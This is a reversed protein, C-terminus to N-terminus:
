NTPKVTKYISSITGDYGYKKDMMCVKSSNESDVADLLVEMIKEPKNSFKNYLIAVANEMDTMRHYEKDKIYEYLYNTPVEVKEM